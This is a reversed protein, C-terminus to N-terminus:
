RCSVSLCRLARVAMLSLVSLSLAISACVNVVLCQARVSMLLLVSLSLAISACVNVVLCQSVVCHKCQVTLRANMLSSSSMLQVSLLVVSDRSTMHVRQGHSKVQQCVCVCMVLLLLLVSEHQVRCMM